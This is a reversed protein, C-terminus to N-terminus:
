ANIKNEIYSPIEDKEIGLVESFESYLLKQAMEMARMDALHFKKGQSTLEDRKRALLKILKILQAHDDSKIIKDHNIRRANDNEIWQGCDEFPTSILSEVEDKTLLPRIKCNANNCPCFFTTGNSDVPSIVYYRETKFSIEKDEIAVIRCVGMHGYIVKDGINYM